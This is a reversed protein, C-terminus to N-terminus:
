HGDPNTGIRDPDFAHRNKFIHALSRAGKALTAVDTVTRVELLRRMIYKPRGYFRRFAIQRLAVLQERTMTDPVFAAHQFTAHDTDKTWEGKGELSDYLDTGPLPAITNFNAIYPDLEIAFDISALGDEFTEDFRTGCGVSGLLALGAIWRM